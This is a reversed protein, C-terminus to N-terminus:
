AGKQALKTAVTRNEAGTIIGFGVPFLRVVTMIGVALIVMAVLIEVLTSGARRNHRRKFSM